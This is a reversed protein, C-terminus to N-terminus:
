TYYPLISEGEATPTSENASQKKKKDLMEQRAEEAMEFQYEAQLTQKNKLFKFVGPTDNDQLIDRMPIAESRKKRLLLMKLVNLPRKGFEEPFKLKTFRVSDDSDKLNAELHKEVHRPTFEELATRWLSDVRLDARLILLAKFAKNLSETHNNTTFGRSFVHSWFAPCWLHLCPAWENKVWMLAAKYKPGSKELLDELARLQLVVYCVICM